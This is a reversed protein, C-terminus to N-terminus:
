GIEGQEVLVKPNMNLAKAFRLFVSLRPDKTLRLFQWASKRATQEPYRADMGLTTLSKGSMKFAVNMMEMLMESKM